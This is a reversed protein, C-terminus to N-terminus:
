FGAHSKYSITFQGAIPLEDPALVYAAHKEYDKTVEQRKLPCMFLLANLSHGQKGCVDLASRCLEKANGGFLAVKLVNSQNAAYHPHVRECRLSM